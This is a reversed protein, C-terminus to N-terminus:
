ITAKTMSHFPTTYSKGTVDELGQAIRDGTMGLEAFSLGTIAELYFRQKLAESRGLGNWFLSAGVIAAMWEKIEGCPRPLSVVLPYTITLSQHLKTYRSDYLFVRVTQVITDWYSYVQSPSISNEQCDFLFVFEKSSAPIDVMDNFGDYRLFWDGESLVRRGVTPILRCIM